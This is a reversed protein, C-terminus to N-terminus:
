DIEKLYIVIKDIVLDKENGDYSELKKEDDINVVFYNDLFGELTEEKAVQLSPDDIRGEKLMHITNIYFNKDSMGSRELIVIKPM